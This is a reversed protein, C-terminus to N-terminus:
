PVISSLYDSSMFLSILLLPVSLASAAFIIRSAMSCSITFCCLLSRVIVVVVFLPLLIIYVFIFYCAHRCERGGPWAGTLPM